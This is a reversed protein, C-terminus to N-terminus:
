PMTSIAAFTSAPSATAAASIRCAGTADELRQMTADLEATRARVRAELHHRAESQILENQAKLVNIRYALAFSLLIMEAASGFQMSYDTLPNKPLVGLSVAAYAVVGLLLASWAVLFHRAPAYRRLLARRM